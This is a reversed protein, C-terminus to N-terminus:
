KSYSIETIIETQETTNKIYVHPLKGKYENRPRAQRSLNAAHNGGYSWIPTNKLIHFVHGSYGKKFKTNRIHEKHRTTGTQGIYV